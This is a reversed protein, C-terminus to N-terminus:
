RKTDTDNKNQKPSELAVKHGDESRRTKRRIEINDIVAMRLETAGSEVADADGSQQRKGRRRRKQGTTETKEEDEAKRRKVRTVAQEGGENKSTKSDVMIIRLEEKQEQLKERREKMEKSFGGDIVKRIKKGTDDIVAKSESELDGKQKIHKKTRRHNVGLARQEAEKESLVDEEDIWLQDALWVPLAMTNPGKIHIARVNQWKKPVFREVIENVVIKVNETLQEPTFSSLGVRVSSTVSPSLYVQACSLTRKIENAFRWPTAVSAVSNSGLQHSQPILHTGSSTSGQRLFKPPQFNVPIPRKSSHDYFAKGLIKPLLTIIRDDALFVEHEALLQRRSEYSKYRAKIKAVGIIRTIRSSLQTPFSPAAIVDKFIRQPDATFLCISTTPHNNLSHPLLIKGPKLRKKDVIHKKTTIVLWLPDIPSHNGDESGDGPDSLLNKTTSAAEKSKAKSQIHNLLAHSAKLTQFTNTRCRSYDQVFKVQTEDLQYSPQSNVAMTSATLKLM